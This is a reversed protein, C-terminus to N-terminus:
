ARRGGKNGTKAGIQSAAYRAECLLSACRLPSLRDYASMLASFAEDYDEVQGLSDLLADVTANTEQQATKLIALDFREMLRADRKLEKVERSAFLSALKTFISRKKNINRCGCPCSGQYKFDSAAQGFGPFMDRGSQESALEFDDDQM